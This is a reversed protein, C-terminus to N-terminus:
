GSTKCHNPSSCVMKRKAAHKWRVFHDSGAVRIEQLGCANGLGTIVVCGVFGRPAGVLVRNAKKRMEYLAFMLDDVASRANEVESIGDDSRTQLEVVWEGEGITKVNKLWM